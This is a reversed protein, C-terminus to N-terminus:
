NTDCNPVKYLRTWGIEGDHRQEVYFNSGAQYCRIQIGAAPEGPEGQPGVEGQPGTEGVPGQEGTNGKPGVVTVGPLGVPGVPGVPGPNGAQGNLGNVGDRATVAVASVDDLGSAISAIRTDNVRQISVFYYAMACNVALFGFAIFLGAAALRKM